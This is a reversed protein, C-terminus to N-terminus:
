IDNVYKFSCTFNIFFIFIFVEFHNENMHKNYKDINFYGLICTECKYTSLKYRKEEKDRERVRILEEESMERITYRSDRNPLKVNEVKNETLEDQSLSINDEEIEEKCNIEDPTNIEEDGIVEIKIDSFEFQFDFGAKTSISLCSYSKQM